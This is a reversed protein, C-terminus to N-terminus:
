KEIEIKYSKKIQNLYNQFNKLIFFSKILNKSELNLELNKFILYLFFIKKTNLKIKINQSVRFLNFNLNDSDKLNQKLANKKLFFFFAKFCFV